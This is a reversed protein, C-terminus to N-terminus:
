AATKHPGKKGKEKTGPAAAETSGAAAASADGAPAPEKKDPVEVEIESVEVVEELVGMESLRPRYFGLIREATQNTKLGGEEVPRKLAAVLDERSMKGGAAVVTDVIVKAQPTCKDNAGIEKKVVYFKKKVEKKVTAMLIKQAVEKYFWRLVSKIDSFPNHQHIDYKRDVYSARHHQADYETM